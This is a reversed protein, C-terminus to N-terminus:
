RQWIFLNCVAKEREPGDGPLDAADIVREHVKREQRQGHDRGQAEGVPSDKVAVREGIDRQENFFLATKKQEPSVRVFPRECGFCSFARLRILMGVGNPRRAQGESPLDTLERKFRFTHNPCNESTVCFCRYVGCGSYSFCRRAPVINLNEAEPGRRPM